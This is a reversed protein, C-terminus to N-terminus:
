LGSFKFNPKELLTLWVAAASQQVITYTVGLFTWGFNSRLDQYDFRGQQM